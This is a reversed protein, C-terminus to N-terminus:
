LLRGPHSGRGEANLSSRWARSPGSGAVRSGACGLSQSTWLHPWAAPKHTCMLAARQAQAVCALTRACEQLGAAPGPCYSVREVRRAPGRLCHARSLGLSSESRLFEFFPVAHVRLGPKWAALQAALPRSSPSSPCWLRPSQLVRHGQVVALTLWTTLDPRPSSQAEEAAESPGEAGVGARSGVLLSPCGPCSLTRGALGPARAGSSQEPTETRM